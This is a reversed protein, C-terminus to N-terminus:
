YQLMRELLLPRLFQILQYLKDAKPDFYGPFESIDRGGFFHRPHSFFARLHAFKQFIVEYAKEALRYGDKNDFVLDHWLGHLDTVSARAGFLPAVMLDECYERIHIKADDLVPNRGNLQAEVQRWKQDRLDPDLMELLDIHRTVVDLRKQLSQRLHPPLVKRRHQLLERKCQSAVLVGSGAVVAVAPLVAAAGVAGGVTAAASAAAVSTGDRAILTEQRGARRQREQENRPAGEVQARRAESGPGGIAGDFIAEDQGICWNQWESDALLASRQAEQLIQRFRTRYQRLNYLVAQILGFVRMNLPENQNLAKELAVKVPPTIFRVDVVDDWNVRGVRAAPGGAGGQEHTPTVMEPMEPHGPEPEYRRSPVLQQQPPPQALRVRPISRDTGSRSTTSTGSPLLRQLRGAAADDQRGHPVVENDVAPTAAPPHGGAFVDEDQNVQVFVPPADVQVGRGGNANPDPTRPNQVDHDWVAQLAQPEVQPQPEQPQGVEEGQPEPPPQGQEPANAASRGRRSSSVLTPMNLNVAEVVGVSNVGIFSNKTSLLFLTTPSLLVLVLTLLSPARSRPQLARGFCLVWSGMNSKKTLNQAFVPPAM